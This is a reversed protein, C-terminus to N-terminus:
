YPLPLATCYPLPLYLTEPAYIGYQYEPDSVRGWHTATNDYIPLQQTLFKLYRVVSVKQCNSSFDKYHFSM